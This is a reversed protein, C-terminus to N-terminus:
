KTKATSKKKESEGTLAPDVFEQPKNEDEPKLEPSESTEPKGKQKILEVEPPTTAVATFGNTKGEESLKIWAEMPIWGEIGNKIVRQHTSSKDLAM